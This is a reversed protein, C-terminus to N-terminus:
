ILLLVQIEDSHLLEGLGYRLQTFDPRDKADKEWCQMM